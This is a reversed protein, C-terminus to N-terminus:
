LIYMEHYLTSLLHIYELKQSKKLFYSKDSLQPLPDHQSKKLVKNRPYKRLTSGTQVFAVAEDDCKQEIETDTSAAFVRDHNV